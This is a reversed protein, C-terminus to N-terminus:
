QELLVQQTRNFNGKSTQPNVLLLPSSLKHKNTGTNLHSFFM